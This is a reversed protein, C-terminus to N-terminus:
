PLQIKLGRWIATGMAADNITNGVLDAAFQHLRAQVKMPGGGKLGDLRGTGGTFSLSGECGKGFTGECNWKAFARAGDHTSVICRGQGIQKETLVEIQLAVPCTIFGTDVPGDKGEIFLLGTFAGVFMAEKEGTAYLQGRGHWPAFANITEEEAARAGGSTSALLLCLAVAQATRRLITM